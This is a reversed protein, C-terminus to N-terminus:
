QCIRIVECRKSRCFIMCRMKGNETTDFSHYIPSTSDVHKGDAVVKWGEITNLLIYVKM